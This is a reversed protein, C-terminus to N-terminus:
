VRTFHWDNTRSQYSVNALGPLQLLNCHTGTWTLSQLTVERANRL